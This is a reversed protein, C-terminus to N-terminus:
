KADKIGQDIEDTYALTRNGINYTPFVGNEIMKQVTQISCGIYKAIARLGSLREHVLMENAVQDKLVQQKMKEFMENQQDSMRKVVRDAIMDLFAGLILESDILIKTM